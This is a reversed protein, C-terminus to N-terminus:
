HLYARQCLRYWRRRRWCRDEDYVWKEDNDVITTPPLYHDLVWQDSNLDMHWSVNEIFKWDYPPEIDQLSAASTQCSSDNMLVGFSSSVYQPNVWVNHDKDFSQYEFIEVQRNEFPSDSIFEEKELCESTSVFEDFKPRYTNIVTTLLNNEVICPILFIFWGIVMSLQRWPIFKFVPSLFYVGAISLLVFFCIATSHTEDTFLFHRDLIEAVFDYIMVYQGMFNQTDVVNLFFEDSMEAAPSTPFPDHLPPGDAVVPNNQLGPLHEPPHRVTYAPVLIGFYVAVMPLIALLRPNLCIWSYVFLLSLTASPQKWTLLEVMIYYTNHVVSMRSTMGKFNESSAHFSFADRTKQRQIRKTFPGKHNEFTPFYSAALKELVRDVLSPSHPHESGSHSHMSKHHGTSTKTSNNRKQEHSSRPSNELMSILSSGPTELLAVEEGNHNRNLIGHGSGAAGVIDWLSDM